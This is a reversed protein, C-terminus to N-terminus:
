QMEASKEHKKDMFYKRVFTILLAIFFAIGITGFFQSMAGFEQEPQIVGYFAVLAVTLGAAWPVFIKRLEKVALAKYTGIGLLLIIIIASM